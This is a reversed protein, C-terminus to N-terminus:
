GEQSSSNNEPAATEEPAASAGPVPTAQANSAKAPGKEQMTYYQELSDGLQNMLDKGMVAIEVRRNKRMNEEVDNPAVPMHQGKGAPELRAPDLHNAMGEFMENLAAVVEVARMTSLEWDRYIFNPRDQDAQATHGYVKILDIYPAAQNLIPALKELVARGEPTLYEKEPLFFVTDRISLFVGNDGKTVEVNVGSEQVMQQIMEYLQDMAADVAQQVSEKIGAEMDVQTPDAVGPNDADNDAYPGNENGATIETQDPRANPNFSQVMAKFKNQDVTSISYLLVFFCLLLTVMDGYTDMWNAGGGEGGSNKKKM